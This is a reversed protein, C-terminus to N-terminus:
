SELYKIIFKAAKMGENFRFFKAKEYVEDSPINTNFAFDSRAGFYVVIEDSRRFESFAVKRAECTALAFGQERCNSYVECEVISDDKSQKALAKVVALVKRAAGDNRTYIKM